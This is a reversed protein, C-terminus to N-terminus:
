SKTTLPAMCASFVQLETGEAPVEPPAYMDDIIKTAQAGLYAFLAYVQAKPTGAERATRATAAVVASYMCPTTLKAREAALKALQVACDQYFVGAYDWANSVNDGYIPDVLPVLVDASPRAGFLQKPLEKPDGRLKDGAIVYANVSLSACFGLRSQEAATFSPAPAQTAAAPAPTPRTVPKATSCACLLCLLFTAPTQKLKVKADEINAPPPV